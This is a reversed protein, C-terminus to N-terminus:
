ECSHGKSRQDDQGEMVAMSEDSYEARETILVPIGDIVPFRRECGLCFVVRQVPELLLGSFCAPCAFQELLRADPLQCDVQSHPSSAPDTM